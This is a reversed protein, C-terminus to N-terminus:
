VFEIDDDDITGGESKVTTTGTESGSLTIVITDTGVGDIGIRGELDDDIQIKDDGSGDKDFDTITNTTTGQLQDVTFYVTDDGQGLTAIDNGTGLRVIDDGGSANITDDGAGGRIFDVGQSGQLEDNGAGGKVYYDLAGINSPANSAITGGDPSEITTDVKKTDSIIAGDLNATVSGEFDDSVQVASGGAGLTSGGSQATGIVLNGTGGSIIVDTSETGLAVNVTDSSSLNSTDITVSDNATGPDTIAFTTGSTVAVTSGATPQEVVSTVDIPTVASILASM